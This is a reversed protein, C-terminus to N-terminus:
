ELLNGGLTLVLHGAPPQVPPFVVLHAGYDTFKILRTTEFFPERKLSADLVHTRPIEFRLSPGSDWHCEKLDVGSTIWTHIGGDSFGWGFRGRKLLAEIQRDHKGLVYHEEIRISPQKWVPYVKDNRFHKMYYHYYSASPSIIAYAKWGMEETLLYGVSWGAFGRAKWIRRHGRLLKDYDTRDMGAKLIEQAYLTCDLRQPRQRHRALEAVYRQWVTEESGPLTQKRAYHNAWWRGYYPCVGVKYSLAYSRELEHVKRMAREVDFTPTALARCSWGLELLAAVAIALALIRVEVRRTVNDHM